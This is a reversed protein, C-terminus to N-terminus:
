GTTRLRASQRRWGGAPDVSLAVGVLYEIMAPWTSTADSDALSEEGASLSMTAPVVVSNILQTLDRGAMLDRLEDILAPVDDPEVM